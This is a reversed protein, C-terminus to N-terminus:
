KKSSVKLNTLSRALKKGFTSPDFDGFDYDGFDFGGEGGFINGMFAMMLANTFDETCQPNTQTYPYDEFDFEEADKAGKYDAYAAKCDSENYAFRPKSSNTCSETGYTYKAKIEDKSWSTIEVTYDKMITIKDCTIETGEMMDLGEGFEGGAADMFIDKLFCNGSYVIGAEVTKDGFVEVSAVAGDEEDEYADRWVGKPFSSGSYSYVEEDGDFDVTVRGTKSDYEYSFTEKEGNRDWVLKGGEEKCVPESYTITQESKNIEYGAKYRAIFGKTDSAAAGDSDASSSSSCATFALAAAASAILIKKM